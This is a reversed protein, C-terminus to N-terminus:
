TTNTQQESDRSRHKLSQVQAIFIMSSAQQLYILLQHSM